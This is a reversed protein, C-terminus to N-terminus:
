KGEGDKIDFISIQGQVQPEKQPERVVLRVLEKDGGYPKNPFLGCAHGYALWDTAESTTVGYVKCKRYTRNHHDLRLFYKCDKCLGSEAKGFEAYMLALKRLTAM